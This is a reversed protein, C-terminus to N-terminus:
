FRHYTNATHVFTTHRHPPQVALVLTAMKSWVSHLAAMVTPAMATTVVRVMKAYRIGVSRAHIQQQSIEVTARMGVKLPAALTADMTHIPIVTTVVKVQKVNAMAVSTPQVHTLLRSQDMEAHSGMKQPVLRVAATQIQHTAMMAVRAAWASAIGVLQHVRQAARQTVGLVPMVLRSQVPHVVDTVM